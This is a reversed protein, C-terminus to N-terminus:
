LEVDGYLANGLDGAADVASRFTDFVWDFAYQASFYDHRPFRTTFDCILPVVKDNMLRDFRYDVGENNGVASDRMWYATM